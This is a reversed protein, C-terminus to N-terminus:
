QRFYLTAKYKDLSDSTFCFCEHTYDAPPHSHVYHDRFVSATKWRGTKTVIDPNKGSDIAATAGTPLFTKASYGQNGLGAIRIVEDVINATTSTRLARFPPQLTVFASAEPYPSHTDTRAIYTQLASVPDVLVNEDCPLHVNFGSRSTDNKIGHFTISAVGNDNFM